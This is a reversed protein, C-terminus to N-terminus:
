EGDGEAKEAAVALLREIEDPDANKGVFKTALKMFEQRRKNYHQRKLKDRTYTNVVQLIVEADLTENMEEVTNFHRLVNTKPM